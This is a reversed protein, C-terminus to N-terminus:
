GSTRLTDLVVDTGVAVIHVGDAAVGVETLEIGDPLSEVPVSLGTLQDALAGPLDEVDLQAGGLSLSVVDVTIARGAAHPELAVDVPIGLLLLTAVLHGDDISLEADLGLVAQLAAPQLSATLTAREATTPRATSVGDLQVVVDELELGDLTAEPATVEVDDLRGALVQLLFPTGGISVTPDTGPLEAMVTRALSAETRTRMAGDAVVAGVVVVGVVVLGAAVGRVGM